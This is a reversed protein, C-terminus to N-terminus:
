VHLKGALHSYGGDVIITQGVIMQAAPSCLFAVVGAVDESTALRGTPTQERVLTVLEDPNTLSRIADTEIIGPSVANVIIGEAALEVGWYRVM